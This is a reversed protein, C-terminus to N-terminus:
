KIKINNIKNRLRDNLPIPLLKLSRDDESTTFCFLMGNSLECIAGGVNSKSDNLKSLIKFKPIIRNSVACIVGSIVVGKLAILEGDPVIVAVNDLPKTATVPIEKDIEAKDLLDVIERENLINNVIIKILDDLISIQNIPEGNLQFVPSNIEVPKTLKSSEIQEFIFNVEPPKIFKRVVETMFFDNSFRIHNLEENPNYDRFEYLDIGHYNAKKVGPGTYGSSSVIGGKKISESDKFHLCLQEIEPSGLKRAHDKVQLGVFLIEEDFENFYKIGVDIDRKRESAKDYVMEGLVIDVKDPTTIKCFSGVILHIDNPTLM